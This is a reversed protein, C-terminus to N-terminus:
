FLSYIETWFLQYDYDNNLGNGAKIRTNGNLATPKQADGTLDFTAYGVKIKTNKTLAYRYEFQIMTASPDAIGLNNFTDYRTNRLDTGVPIVGNINGARYHALDNKSIDDLERLWDGVVRFYHKPAHKPTYEVQFKLDSMNQLGRTFYFNGRDLDEWPTEHSYVYRADNVLAYGGANEDDGFAYQLKVKYEKNPTWTVAGLGQWGKRDIDITPTVATSVMDAHYDSYVFSLDYTWTDNRGINGSSGFEIDRRKDSSQDGAVTNGLNILGLTGFTTPAPIPNAFRNGQRNLDNALDPEDQAYLSLYFHKDKCKKEALFNWVGRFDNTGDDKYSGLHRDYIHQATLTLDNNFSRKYRISDVFANVLMGHGIWYWAKGFFMEDKNHFLKKIKLFATDVRNDAARNANIGNLGWTANRVYGTTVNDVAKWFMRFRAGMSINEDIKADFRFRMQTEMAHNNSGGRQAAGSFPNVAWDNKHSKWTSKVLWNGSLKVKETQNVMEKNIDELDAKLISIDSKVTELDKELGENRLGLLSLESSFEQSLQDIAALDERTALMSGDNMKEAVHALFRSFTIAFEYRTMNRDGAFDKFSTQDLIGRDMLKQVSDWAWHNEPMRSFVAASLSSAIVLLCLCVFLSRKLM